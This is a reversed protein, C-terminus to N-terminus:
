ELLPREDVEVKELLNLRHVALVLLLDDLGPRPSRGDHRLHHAVRDRHVVPPLENRDVDGLVHDPVLEALERGRARELPVGRLGLLRRLPSASSPQLSLLPLTRASRPESPRGRRRASERSPRTPPAPSGGTRACASRGRGRSPAATPSQLRAAAGR